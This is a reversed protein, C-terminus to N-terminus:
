ETTSPGTGLAAAEDAYVEVVRDLRCIRLADILVPGVGYLRLSGGAENVRWYLCALLTVVSSSAYRVSNLNLLLRTHGQEVLRQLRGSLERIAREELLVEGNVFDVVTFGGVAQVSLDPRPDPDRPDAPFLGV